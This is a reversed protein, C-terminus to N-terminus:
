YTVVETQGRGLRLFGVTLGMLSSPASQNRHGSPTFDVSDAAWCAVASVPCNRALTNEAAPRANDSVTTKVFRRRTKGYLGLDGMLRAIRKTSHRRGTAALEAQIRPAGYRGKHDDYISQITNKLEEDEM